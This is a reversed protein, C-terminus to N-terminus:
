DDMWQFNIKDLLSDWYFYRTGGADYHFFEIGINKILIDAPENKACEFYGKGCATQYSGAPVNQLGYYRMFLQIDEPKKLSTDNQTDYLKIVEISNKKTSLFLFVGLGINKIPELIMVSDIAGDGNYDAGASLYKTPSKNRWDM